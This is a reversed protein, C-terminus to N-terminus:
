EFYYSILNGTFWEWWSKIDDGQKNMRQADVLPKAQLSNPLCKPVLDSVDQEHELDMFNKESKLFCQPPKAM